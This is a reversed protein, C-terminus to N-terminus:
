AAPTRPNETTGSLRITAGREPDDRGLYTEWEHQWEDWHSRFLDGDRALARRKRVGDDARLWIRIESFRLHAAALAGCGEVILPHAPDVPHWEAARANAWDYRQWAAPLGDARPALVHRTLHEIAADLGQWGPYIDDLRVLEPKPGGSPWAAALRDALTSKGAGSPGDILVVPTPGAGALAALIPGLLASPRAAPDPSSM